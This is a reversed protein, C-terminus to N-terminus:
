LTVTQVSEGVRAANENVGVITVSKSGGLNDQIPRGLKEAHRKNLIQCTGPQERMITKSAANYKGWADEHDWKRLQASTVGIDSVYM